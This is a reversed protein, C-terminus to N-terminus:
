QAGGDSIHTFRYEATWATHRGARHMYGVGVEETFNTHSGQEPVLNTLHCLGAGVSWHLAYNSRVHFYQRRAYVLEWARTSHTGNELTSLSLELGKELRPSEFRRWAVAM